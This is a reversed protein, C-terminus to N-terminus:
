SAEVTTPATGLEVAAATALADLSRALSSGPRSRRRSPPAGASLVAAGRPDWPLSGLMPLGLVGSVERASYPRGPGVLVSHLVRQGLGYRSLDEALSGAAGRAANIAPLDSGSLLCVLDAQRLLPDPAAFAGLRGADIIVDVGLTDMDRLAAALPEWLEPLAAVQAANAVGALLRLGGDLVLLHDAIAEDLPQGLAAAARVDVLGRDHAVVGRGYGALVASGPTMAAEVLLSPRHWALALGVATTTVGPAGSASTLAIVAM